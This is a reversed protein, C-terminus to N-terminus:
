SRSFKDGLEGQSVEFDKKPDLKRNKLSLITGSSTQALIQPSRSLGPGKLEGQSETEGELRIGHGEGQARSKIDESSRRGLLGSYLFSSRRTGPPCM